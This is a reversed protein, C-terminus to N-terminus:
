KQVNTMRDLYMKQVMEEWSPAIFGTLKEFSTGDLSRDIVLNPNPIINIQKNFINAILQLLNYKSIPSSAVQYLGSLSSHHLLINEIVGMLIITPLGSYIAKTFGQCDVDQSLFWELLGNASEFENGIYSTRLTLVHPNNPIEGLFKTRGYLDTADAVDLEEYPSDKQGSFVCDTSIQILKASFQGCLKALQHPLLANLKIANLYDNAGQAQKVLGVCNIVVDPSQAEFLSKQVAEDLIDVDHLVAGRIESSFYDLSSASRVTGVVEFERRGTFYKMCANGLMGNAGVILIKM